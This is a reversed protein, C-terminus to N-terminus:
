GGTRGPRGAGGAWGGESRRSPLRVSAWGRGFRPRALAVSPVGWPQEAPSIRGEPPARHGRARHTWVVGVMQRQMMCHIARLMAPSLSGAAARTAKQTHEGCRLLERAEPGADRAGARGAGPTDGHGCTGQRDTRVQTGRQRGPQQRRQQLQVQQRRRDRQLGDGLPGLVRAAARLSQDPEAAQVLLTQAGMGLLGHDVRTGDGQSEHLGRRLAAASWLEAVRHKVEPMAPDGTDESVGAAIRRQSVCQRGGGRGSGAGAGAGRPDGRVLGRAMCTSRGQAGVTRARLRVAGKARVTPACPAPGALHSSIWEISGAGMAPVYTYTNHRGGGIVNLETHVSGRGFDAIFDRVQAITRRSERTGVQFALYVDPGKRAILQRALLRPNNQQEQRRHGAWLPSDPVLGPGSALVAKFRGPYKLVAKLGAFGGSSSGLFGWGDRSTLTRLNARMLDPVDQTLWTGMRPQGPIDSGDWCLGGADTAPNLVPM